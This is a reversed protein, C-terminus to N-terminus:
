STMSGLAFMTAAMQAADAEKQKREAARKMGEAIRKGKEKREEEIYHEVPKTLADRWGNWVYRPLIIISTCRCPDFAAYEALRKIASETKGQATAILMQQIQRQQAIAAASMTVTRKSM